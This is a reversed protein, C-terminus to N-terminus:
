GLRQGPGRTRWSDPLPGTSAGTTRGTSPGQPRVATGFGRELVRPTQVLRSLFAPTPILNRGGGFEPWLRTLFDYLHAAVLGELELMMMYVGNPFLLNVLIMCVPTLQAPITIFYFNAKAGRQDQTATYCMALILAKCFVSFPLGVVYNIGLITTGVFILYWLFDEKRPFRSNGQELQSMYQYMFYTDFLIGLKPSTILFCTVPRWLQPLLRFLFEPAHVFYYGPVFGLHVGISLLFTATATNRAFPPLRWYVDGVDEM